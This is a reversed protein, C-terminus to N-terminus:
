TVEVCELRIGDPDRWECWAYNRHAFFRVEGLAHDMIRLNRLHATVEAVQRGASTGDASDCCSDHHHRIHKMYIGGRRCEHGHRSHFRLHSPGGNTRVM